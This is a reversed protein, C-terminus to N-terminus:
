NQYPPVARHVQGPPRAYAVYHGYKPVMAARDLCAEITRANKVAVDLSYQRWKQEPQDRVTAWSFYASAGPREPRSRARRSRGRSRRAASCRYSRAANREIVEDAHHQ